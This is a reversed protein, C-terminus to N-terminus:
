IIHVFSGQHVKIIHILDEIQLCENCETKIVIGTLLSRSLTSVTCVFSISKQKIPNGPIAAITVLM